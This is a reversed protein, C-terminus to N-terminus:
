EKKKPIKNKWFAGTVFSRKNQNVLTHNVHELNRTRAYRDCICVSRTIAKKGLNESIPYSLIKGRRITLKRWVYNEYFDNNIM